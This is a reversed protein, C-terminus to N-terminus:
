FHSLLYILNGHNVPHSSSQIGVFIAVFFDNAVDKIEARHM